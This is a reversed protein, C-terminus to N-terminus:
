LASLFAPEVSAGLLENLFASVDARIGAAPVGTRYVLENARIARALLMAPPATAGIPALHKGYQDIAMPALREPERMLAECAREYADFVRLLASRRPPTQLVQESTHLGGIPLQGEDFSRFGTFMAQMDIASLAINSGGESGMRSRMVMGTSGPSPITIGAAQGAAVQAIGAKAPMYAVELDRGPDLNARRVAAQFIIDGGGNRGSGMPGSVIVKHGRLEAFSRIERPVVEFFGRWTNISVLRLGLDPASLQKKAGIYTMGLFADAEGTRFMSDIEASEKIPSFSWPLDPELALALMLPFVHPNAASVLRLSTDSRELAASLSARPVCGSAISAAAAMLVSRRHLM